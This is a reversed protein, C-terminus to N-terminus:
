NVKLSVTSHPLNRLWCFPICQHLMRTSELSVLSPNTSCGMVITCDVLTLGKAKSTISAGATLLLYAGLDTRTWDKNLLAVHHSQPPGFITAHGVHVDNRRCKKYSESQGQITRMPTKMRENLDKNEESPPALAKTAQEYHQSEAM